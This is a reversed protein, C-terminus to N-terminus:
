NCLKKEYCFFTNELGPVKIEGVFKYGMKEFFKQAKINESNTDTRMYSKGKKIIEKEINEMLFASVGTSRYANDVALRHIVYDDKASEWELNDYEKFSEFNAAGLGMVEDSDNVVAYLTGEKIDNIFVERNPYASDWQFNGSDNMEKVTEGIIKMIRDLDETKAHRLKM